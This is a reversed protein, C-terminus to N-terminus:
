FLVLHIHLLAGRWKSGPNTCNPAQVEWTCTGLLQHLKSKVFSISPNILVYTIVCFCLLASKGRLGPLKSDLRWDTCTHWYREYDWTNVSVRASQVHGLLVLVQLSILAPEVVCQHTFVPRDRLLPGWVTCANKPRNTIIIEYKCTTTQSFKWCLITLEFLPEPTSM